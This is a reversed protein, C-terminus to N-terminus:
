DDEGERRFLRKIFGAIRKFFLKTAFLCGVLAAVAVQLIYSGTGPDLYAHADQALGFFMTTACGAALGLPRNRDDRHPNM